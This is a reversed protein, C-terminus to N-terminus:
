KDEKIHVDLQDYPIAIGTRDFAKKVTEILDFRLTWYDGTTCWVRLTLVIGSKGQESVLVAPSPDKLALPHADAISSLVEKARDIDSDYSISFTLDVRRQDNATYNTVTANMLTGNPLTVERNDVTTLNTYFATISKVTGQVGQTEVYDGVKFPRFILLMIGGAFNSLSGQLALGIAVGCTGLVAVISAMPIGMIAIATVTLVLKLGISVFSAIFSAATPDMKSFGKGKRVKKMVVNVLKFGILIVALAIVLRIAYKTANSALDTFFAQFDM